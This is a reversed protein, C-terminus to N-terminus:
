GFYRLKKEDTVKQAQQSKQLLTQLKKEFIEAQKILPKIDLNLKLYKDLLLLLEAAAKSDPLNMHSDVFMCVHEFNKNNLMLAGTVGMIIGEKLPNSDKELNKILTKKNSYIFTRPKKQKDIAPNGVGELSIIQKCNLKKMLEILKTKIKWELGTVNSVSHVLAIGKSKNYYISVPKLVESNHIPAIPMTEEIEIEGIKEFKLHNILYETSITSVLGVGPFGEILYKASVKKDLKIEM